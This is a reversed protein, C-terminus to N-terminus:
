NCTGQYKTVLELDCGMAELLVIARINKLEVAQIMAAELTDCGYEPLICVPEDGIHLSLVGITRLLEPNLPERSLLKATDINPIVWSVCICGKEVSIQSAVRYLTKLTEKMVIEFKKITFDSWFERLKLKVVKNKSGTIQKAKILEALDSMEASLKFQDVERSYDEILTQLRPNQDGLLARTLFALIEFNLISYNQQVNEWVDEIKTVRPPLSKLPGYEEVILDQMREVDVNAQKFASKVEAALVSFKQSLSKFEDAVEATIEVRDVSRDDHSSHRRRVDHSSASSASKMFSSSTQGSMASSQFPPLNYDSQIRKALSYNEMYSLSEAILEWSMPLGRQEICKYIEILCRMVGEAKYSSGIEDLQNPPVGMFIGFTYWRTEESLTKTFDAITPRPAPTTRTSM